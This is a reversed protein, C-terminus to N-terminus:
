NIKVKKKWEKDFTVPILTEKANPMRDFPCLSCQPIVKSINEIFKKIDDFKDFPSCSKYDELLSIAREEYRIQNKFAAYNTVLPCKYMLGQQLTYCNTAWLCNEHSKIPDSNSLYMIGDKVEKIYNKYMKDVLRHVILNKGNKRYTICDNIADKVIEIGPKFPELIKIIFTEHLSFDSQKHTCVLLEVDSEILIKTLRINKELFLLTGNTVVKIISNKWLNKVNLTWKLLDPHLYPEGGLIDINPVQLFSAWKKYYDAHDEWKFIGKFNYCQATGCNNCTLNCTNNIIIALPNEFNIKENSNM